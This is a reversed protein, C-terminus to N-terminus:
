FAGASKLFKKLSGASDQRLEPDMSAFTCRGECRLSRDGQVVLLDWGAIFLEIDACYEESNENVFGTMIGRVADPSTVSLQQGHCLGFGALAVADNWGACFQETDTKHERAKAIM